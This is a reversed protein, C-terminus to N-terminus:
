LVRLAMREELLSRVAQPVVEVVEEAAVKAWESALAVQKRRSDPVSHRFTNPQMCHLPPPQICQERIRHALTDVMRTAMGASHAM